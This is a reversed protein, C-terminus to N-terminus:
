NTVIKEADDTNKVEFRTIRESELYQVTQESGPSLFETMSMIATNGGHAKRKRYYIWGKRECRLLVQDIIWLAPFALLWLFSM